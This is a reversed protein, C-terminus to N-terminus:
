QHRIPITLYNVLLPDFVSNYRDPERHCGVHNSICSEYFLHLSWLIFYVLYFHKLFNAKLNGEWNCRIVTYNDSHNDKCNLSAHVHPIDSSIFCGKRKEAKAKWKRPYVMGMRSHGSGMTENEAPDRIGLPWFHWRNQDSSLRSPLTSGTVADWM